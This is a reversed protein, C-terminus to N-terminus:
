STNWKKFYMSNMEYAYASGIDHCERTDKGLLFPDHFKRKWLKSKSSISSWCLVLRYTPDYDRRRTPYFFLNLFLVNWNVHTMVRKIYVTQSMLMIELTMLIKLGRVGNAEGVRYFTQHASGMNVQSWAIKKQLPRPFFYVAYIKGGGGGFFIAQNSTLGM